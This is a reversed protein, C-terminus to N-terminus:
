TSYLCSLFPWIYAIDSADFSPQPKQGLASTEAMAFIHLSVTEFVTQKGHQLPPVGSSLCSSYLALLPSFFPLVRLHTDASLPEHGNTSRRKSAPAKGPLLKTVASSWIQSRWGLRLWGKTCNRGRRCEGSEGCLKLMAGRDQRVLLGPRQRINPLGCEISHIRFGRREMRVAQNGKFASGRGRREVDCHCAFLCDPVHM